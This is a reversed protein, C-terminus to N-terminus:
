VVASASEKELLNYTKPNEDKDVGQIAKLTVESIISSYALVQNLKDNNTKRTIKTASDRQRVLSSMM